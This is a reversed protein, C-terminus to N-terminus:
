FCNIILIARIRLRGIQLCRSTYEYELRLGPRCILPLLKVLNSIWWRFIYINLLTHNEPKTLRCEMLSRHRSFILSGSWSTLSWLISPAEWSSIMVFFIRSRIFDSWTLRLVFLYCVAICLRYVDGRQSNTLIYKWFIYVFGFYVARGSFNKSFGCVWGTYLM